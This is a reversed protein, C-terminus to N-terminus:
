AAVDLPLRIRGTLLAQMMGQKLQRTKTLRTELEALEADMDTLTTAIATQEPLAPLMVVINKLIKTNLSAMTQGVAVALVLKKFDETHFQFSLYPAFVRLVDVRVRLLRGSFLWGSEGESILANRDISGVRSFVIDGAELAYACLRKCDENSVLPLNQQTIGFEGLHEVTIIPTGSQVYDSEHLASGFPGTKVDAVEGLPVKTWLEAFGPLRQKGTLLTQMTGHKIQRKKAILQELSEILADADSLAEAIAEQELYSPLPVDIVSVHAPGFNLQASGTATGGIQKKFLQSKLFHRFFNKNAQEDKIKFRMTSTNMCLPLDWSSLVGVKEDFKEISVGSCAIVIDGADALFHRYWGYAENESIYRETTDLNIRGNQINTGNFLKVGTTTFQYNRVGPGEQFWAIDSLNAASWDEPIMGAESQKYAPPVADRPAILDGYTGNAEKVEM